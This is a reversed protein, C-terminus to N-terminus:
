REINAVGLLTLFANVAFESRLIRRGLTVGHFGCELWKQEEFANFGGEPGVALTVGGSGAAGVPPRDVAGPVGVLRLAGAPIYKDMEDEIFVKFRPHFSIEPLITDGCQELALIVEKRLVDEALRSSQWYSKEVKASHFFCIRKVGCTVASHIVKAMTLPRQLACLLVVNLAPPPVDQEVFRLYAREGDLKLLEATGIGGNLIGAKCFKGPVAKIVEKLQRFRRGSVCAVGDPLFDEQEFLLLNM